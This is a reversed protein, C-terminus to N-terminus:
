ECVVQITVKYDDSRDSKSNFGTFYAMAVDAAGIQTKGEKGAGQYLSEDKITVFKKDLKGCRRTAEEEAAKYADDERDSSSIIILSNDSQPLVTPRPKLPSCATLGTALVLTLATLFKTDGLYQFRM